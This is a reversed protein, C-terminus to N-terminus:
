DDVILQETAAEQPDILNQNGIPVVSVYLGLHEDDGTDVVIVRAHDGEVKVDPDDVRIESTISYADHGDVQIAESQLDERGSFGRYFNPSDTMCTIVQDASDALNTFGVNKPLGGVSYLAIWSQEVQKYVAGVGDAFQFTTVLETQLRQFGRVPPLTLDGGSISQDGSVEGGANPLGGACPDGTYSNSPQDTPGDTPEDTEDSPEDTPEETEDSPEDTEDTPEATQSSDDQAKDDGDDDSAASVVFFSGIGLAVVVAVAIAILAIQKGSGGGAGGGPAGPFVPQGPYGGSGAYQGPQPEYPDFAQQQYPQGPPLQTAATPPPAPASPAAQGPPPASPDSTLQEGWSQGDWYRYM